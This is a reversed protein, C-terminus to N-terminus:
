LLRAPQEHLDGVVAWSDGFLRLGVDEFGDERDLIDSLAGTETQVDGAANDCAVV